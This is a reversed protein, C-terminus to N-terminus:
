SNLKKILTKRCNLLLESIMTDNNEGFNDSNVDLNIIPAETDSYIRGTTNIVALPATSRIQPSSTVIIRYGNPISNQVKDACYAAIAASQSDIEVAEFRRKAIEFVAKEGYESFTNIMDRISKYIGSVTVRHLHHVPYSKKIGYFQDPSCIIYVPCGTQKSYALAESYHAAAASRGKELIICIFVPQKKDIINKETHRHKVYFSRIESGFSEKIKNCRTESGM